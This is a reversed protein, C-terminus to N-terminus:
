KIVAFRGIKEGAGDLDIHYIYVGYAIRMGESSLLNWYAISGNDDKIIEDVLEGTLTYISITCQPPLNRFQLEREGRKVHTRGPKENASFAVYPNPVVYINDLSENTSSKVFEVEKTDFVFEDGREFPKKTVLQYVDGANPLTQTSVTTDIDFSLQYSVTADTAGQPQLILGEGWDWQGNGQTEINPEYYVFAAPEEIFIGPEKRTINWITFPAAINGLLTSMTDAHLWTGDAAVDTNNWRVEWDTRLPFKDGGLVPPFFSTDIVSITTNNIFRSNEQDLGLEDEQVFVRIGDFVENGDENQILTSGFVPYYRYSIKYENSEPLTSTSTAAIQGKVGNVVYDSTSVVVNDKDKLVVSNSVINKHRLAVLTTGKSIISYEVGTSDLVSYSYSSGFKVKYTKNQVALEELVKLNITGTSNGVTITPRNGIGVEPEKIGAAIPGPTIALTNVDFLLDGTEPDEQIVSQTETPPLEDTGRDYAVVAYYYEVGNQVTSDVYEHVLGTNSGLNYKVGRGVYEIGALGSYENDLDFQAPEGTNIDFLAQGLFPIGNADTIKYVDSFNFDRSRYIKYGEFDEESTLPDISKESNADWYLTVREDGAVATVIPKDPPQAFQYDAELIRVSTIANLLLDPVDEGFLIVMSFRQSEGKALDMPGTSFSFVNDGATQLLEQGPDIEPKTFWDMMRDDNKPTNSPDAWAAVTFGTLGLQDSESIDRFGFNPESGAWKKGLIWEDTLTGVEETDFLGN